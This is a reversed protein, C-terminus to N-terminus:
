APVDQVMPSGPLNVNVVADDAKRCRPMLRESGPTPTYHMDDDENM